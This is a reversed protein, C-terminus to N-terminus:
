SPAQRCRGCRRFCDRSRLTTEEPASQPDEPESPQEPEEPDQAENGVLNDGVRVVTAHTGQAALRERDGAANMQVLPPPVEAHRRLIALDRIRNDHQFRLDRHGQGSATPPYTQLQLRDDAEDRQKGWVPVVTCGDSLGNVCNPLRM